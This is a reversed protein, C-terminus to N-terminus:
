VHARGIETSGASATALGSPLGTTTVASVGGGQPLPPIEQDSRALLRAIGIIGVVVLVLVLVWVWMPGPLRLAKPRRDNAGKRQSLAGVRAPGVPMKIYPHEDGRQARGATEANYQAILPGAPIELYAAYSQIYGKVYAPSPLTDYEGHELAEILKGRIRTSGEVDAVTKGQRRRENALTEGLTAAQEAPPVGLGDEPIQEGKKDIRRVSTERLRPPASLREESAPLTPRGGAREPEPPEPPAALEEPELPDRGSAADINQGDDPPM